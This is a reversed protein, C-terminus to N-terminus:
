GTVFEFVGFTHVATRCVRLPMVINHRINPHSQEELLLELLMSIAHNDSRSCKQRVLAFCPLTYNCRHILGITWSLHYM